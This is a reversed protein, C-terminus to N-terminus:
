RSKYGQICVEKKVQLNEVRFATSDMDDQDFHLPNEIGLRCACLIGTDYAFFLKGRNYSSLTSLPPLEGPLSFCGIYLPTAPQYLVTRVVM